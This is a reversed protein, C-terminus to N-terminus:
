KNLEPVLTNIKEKIKEFTNRAVRMVDEESVGYPHLDRIDWVTYEQPSQGFREQYATLVEPHMLIIKDAQELLTPSCDTWHPSALKFLDNEELVKKTYWCIDGNEAMYALVGSSTATWGEIKLSNFIAEALRSRYTNGLCVFHIRM